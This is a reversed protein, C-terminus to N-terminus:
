VVTNCFKSKFDFVQMMNRKSLVVVFDHAMLHSDTVIKFVVDSRQLDESFITQPSILKVNTCFLQLGAIFM